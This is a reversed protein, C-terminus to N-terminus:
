KKVKKKFESPLCGKIQKFKKYFVTINTFGSEKAVEEVSLKGESLLESAKEVRQRQVYETFNMGCYSKFLRSFYSPNYLFEHAVSSLTIKEGSHKKIYESFESNIKLSTEIDDKSLKRFLKVLILSLYSRVATEYGPEENKNEEELKKFLETMGEEKKFSVKPSAKEIESDFDSFATLMLLAFINDSLANDEGFFEGKILIEYFDMTKETSYAHSEGPNVFLLDGEKVDFSAGGIEHTGSGGYIYIIEAFDHSHPPVFTKGANKKVKLHCLRGGVEDIKYNKM